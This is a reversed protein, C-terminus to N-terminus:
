GARRARRRLNRAKRRRRGLVVAVIIGAIAAAVTAVAVWFVTKTMPIWLFRHQRSAASRAVVFLSMVDPTM